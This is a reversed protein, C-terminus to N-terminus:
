RHQMRAQEEQLHAVFRAHERTALGEQLTALMAAMNNSWFAATYDNRTIRSQGGFRTELRLFADPQVESEFDLLVTANDGIDAGPTAATYVGIWTETGSM